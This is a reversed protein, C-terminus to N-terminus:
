ILEGYTHLKCNNFGYCKGLPPFAVFAGNKGCLAIVLATNAAMTNTRGDTQRDTQRDCYDPIWLSSFEIFHTPGSM